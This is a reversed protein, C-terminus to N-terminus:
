AVIREKRKKPLKPSGDENRKSGAKLWATWTDLFEKHVDAPDPAFRGEATFMGENRYGHIQEIRNVDMEITVFPKNPEKKHRLFLITTKGQLHRNAHGAVCHRLIRGEDVIEQGSEPIKVLLGDWEFVYKEELKRKREPYSKGLLALREQETKTREGELQERHRETAADHAKQLNKPFLVNDKWIELGIAEAATRYDNWYQYAEHLTGQSYQGKLYQVFKMTKRNNKRCFVIIEIGYCNALEAAQKMSVPDERKKQQKYIKVTDPNRDTAMFENLEQKNLGFAKRPDTQTWDIAKANWRRGHTVDEVVSKMGAKMLMEVQRPYLTCLALFHILDYGNVKEACCYRFPSKKLKEMGVLAVDENEKSCFYNYTFPQEIPLPLRKPKEEISQYREGCYWGNIAAEAKGLKFRYVAKKSIEPKDMLHEKDQYDKNAWLAMAWLAGRFWRLVIVHRYLLLNKRQGTRGLEKVVTDAGCYPCTAIVKPRGGHIWHKEMTHEAAMIEYEEESCEQPIIKHTGCCTTWIERTKSRRFIYAPFAANIGDIDEKRFKPSAKLLKEAKEENTM